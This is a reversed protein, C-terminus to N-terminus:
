ELQDRDGQYMYMGTRVFTGYSKHWEDVVLHGRSDRCKWVHWLKTLAALKPGPFHRLRHFFLRYISISLFLSVLYLVALAGPDDRVACLCTAIAIHTVIVSDGRLHWEGHIFVVQHVLVGSLIAVIEATLMTDNDSLLILDPQTLCSTGLHLLCEGSVAALVKEHLIATEVAPILIMCTHGTTMARASPM